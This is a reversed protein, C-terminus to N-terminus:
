KVKKNTKGKEKTDLFKQFEQYEKEDPIIPSNEKTNLLMCLLIGGIIMSITVFPSKLTNIVKGLYQIKFVYKGVVKDLSTKGDDTNNADGKTLMKKKDLQIIRHTVLSQEKDYFTVIDNEKLKKDKTNIIILDGKKLTPEMSSSAIELISYGFITTIKNKFIRINVFSYLSFIFLISICITIITLGIKRIKKM